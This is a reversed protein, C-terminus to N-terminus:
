SFLELLSQKFSWVVEFELSGSTEELWFFSLPILLGVFPEFGSSPTGKLM